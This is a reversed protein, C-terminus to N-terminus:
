RPVLSYKARAIRYLLQMPFIVGELVLFRQFSFTHLFLFGLFVHHSLFRQKEAILAFVLEIM